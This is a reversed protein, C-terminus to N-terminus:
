YYHGPSLIRFYDKIGKKLNWKPAWKLEKKILRINAQTSNQYTEPYPNKYYVLGASTELAGNIYEFLENFSTGVGTGVNYIGSHKAKIAKITAAVVDKVYIHDRKQEGYEFLKVLMNSLIQNRIQYVMSASKGKHEEGHGYVNFFRLGVIKIRHMNRKAINDNILKSRAYANLPQLRQNEKMPIDKNGYVSASSAYILDANIKLAFKLIDNFLKVNHNILEEDPKFTTDTIAALHIITDYRRKQYEYQYQKDFTDVDNQKQLIRYLNSGIFGAGGTILIKM